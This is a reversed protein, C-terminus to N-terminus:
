NRKQYNTSKLNRYDDSLPKLKELVYDLLQTETRKM